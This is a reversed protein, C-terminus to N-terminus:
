MSSKSRTCDVREYIKGTQSHETAAALDSVVVREAGHRERLAPVLEAGIQGLAGTVLIEDCTRRGVAIVGVRKGSRRMRSNLSKVPLSLPRYIKIPRLALRRFGKTAAGRAVRRM